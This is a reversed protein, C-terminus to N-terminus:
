LCKKQKNIVKHLMKRINEGMRNRLNSDVM